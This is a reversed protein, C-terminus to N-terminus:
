KVGRSVMDEPNDSGPVHHWQGPDISNHISSVRNYVCTNFRRSKNKIYALVMESDTWVYTPLVGFLLATRVSSEMKVSLVAAQLELRPMTVARKPNVRAKSCVLITHIMGIKIVVRIYICCGYARQSADSFSHLECYADEFGNPILCRSRIFKDIGVTSSIWRNWQHVMEVPLEDEWSIRMSCVQQFM